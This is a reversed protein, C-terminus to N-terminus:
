LPNHIRYTNQVRSVRVCVYVCVCVCVCAGCEKAKNQKAKNEYLKKLFYLVVYGYPPLPTINLKRVPTM